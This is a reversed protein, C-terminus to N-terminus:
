EFFSHRDIGFAVFRIKCSPTTCKSARRNLALSERNDFLRNFYIRIQSFRVTLKTQHVLSRALFRFRLLFKFRILLGLFCFGGFGFPLLLFKPLEQNNQFVLWCGSRRM